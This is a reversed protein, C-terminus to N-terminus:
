CGVGGDPPPFDLLGDPRPNVWKQLANIFINKLSETTGKILFTNSESSFWTGCIIVVWLISAFLNVKAHMICIIIINAQMIISILQIGRVMTIKPFTTGFCM